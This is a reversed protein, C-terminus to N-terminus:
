HALRDTSLKVLIYQIVPISLGRLVVSGFSTQLAATAQSITNYQVGVGNRSFVLSNNCSVLIYQFLKLQAPCELVCWLRWFFPVCPLTPPLCVLSWYISSWCGPHWALLLYYVTSSNTCVLKKTNQSRIQISPRIKETNPNRPYQTEGKEQACNLM